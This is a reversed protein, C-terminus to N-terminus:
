HEYEFVGDGFVGTKLVKLALLACKYRIPSINVGLTELFEQGDMEKITDLDMGEIMETLISASAQSIACGKGCFKAEVVKNDSVKIDIRIKDGCSPNGEEYSFDADAIQGSNRPNKYHDLVFEMQDVNM